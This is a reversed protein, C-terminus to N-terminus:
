IAPSPGWFSKSTIQWVIPAQAAPVLARFADFIANNAASYLAVSSNGIQYGGIDNEGQSWIIACVKDAYPGVKAVFDNLRPGYTGTSVDYWHNTPAPFLAQNAASAGPNGAGYLYYDDSMKDAASSGLSANIPMVQAPHLGLSNALTTRLTNASVLHHPANVGGSLESFHGFANSQGAWVVVKQVWSSDDVTYGEISNVLTGQADRVLVKLYTPIFGYIPVTDAVSLFTHDTQTTTTFQVAGSVPDVLQVTLPAAVSGSVGLLIRIDGWSSKQLPKPAVVYNWLRIDQQSGDLMRLALTSGGNSEFSACSADLSLRFRWKVGSMDSCPSYTLLDHGWADQADWNLSVPQDCDAWAIHFDLGAGNRIAAGMQPRAFQVYWYDLDLPPAATHTKYASIRASYSSDSALAYDFQLGAIKPVAPAAESIVPRVAFPNGNLYGSVQIFLSANYAASSPVETVEVATLGPGFRLVAAKIMALTESRAAVSLPQRRLHWLGSGEQPNAWWGRREYRDQVRAIPAEADSFLVTYVHAELAAMDDLLVPDNYALDFQGNDIQVLKLM